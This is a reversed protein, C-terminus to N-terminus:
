LQNKKLNLKQQLVGAFILETSYPSYKLNKFSKINKDDDEDLIILTDSKYTTPKTKVVTGSASEVIMKVEELSPKINNGLYVRYGTLFGDSNEKTKELTKALKFSYRKEVDKDAFIYNNPPMVKGKSISDQVWKFSVIDIGKSLALLFKITRKFNNGMVLVNFNKDKEEVAKVGLNALSKKSEEFENDNKDFGSFMVQYANRKSTETEMEDEKAGRRNRKSVQPDTDPSNEAERLKKKTTAENEHKELSAQEANKRPRGRTRPASKEEEEEEEEEEVPNNVKEKTKRKNEQKSELKSMDENNKSAAARTVRRRPNEEAEAEPNSDAQQSKNEAEVEMRDTGETKKSANKRTGQVKKKEVKSEEAEAAKNKKQNMLDRLQKATKPEDSSLTSPLTSPLSSSLSAEPGALDQSASGQSNSITAQQSRRNNGINAFTSPAPAEPKKNPSPASAKTEETETKNVVGKLKQFGSTSSTSNENSLVKRMSFTEESEFLDTLDDGQTNSFVNPVTLTSSKKEGSGSLIKIRNQAPVAVKRTQNDSPAALYHDDTNDGLVQTQLNDLNAAAPRKVNPRDEVEETDVLQTPLNALDAASLQPKKKSPPNKNEEEEEENDVFQTPANEIDFKPPAARNVPRAEEEDNEVFQTPANELDFKPPAAKNAPREEEEEDNEVFQTPANELDFQPPAAKKGSAPEQEENECVLTPAFELDARSMRPSRPNAPKKFGGEDEHSTLIQTAANEINMKPKSVVIKPKPPALTNASHVEDEDHSGLIQTPANEFNGKPPLLRNRNAPAQFATSNNDPLVMTAQIEEEMQDDTLLQTTANDINAVFRSNKPPPANFHNDNGEPLVLTPQFLDDDDEGTLIQTVANAINNNNNIRLRNNSNNNVGLNHDDNEPLVLTSGIEDEEATLIQTVANDMNTTIGGFTVKKKPALFQAQNEQHEPLVMTAQIEEEETLIQTTASDINSVRFRSTHSNVTLHQPQHDENEPLVLTPQFLDDNDDNNNNGLNQTPANDQINKNGGGVSLFPSKKPPAKFSTENEEPLVLTPQFLDDEEGTLIQTAANDIHGAKFKNTHSNGTLHQPQHDENEPLVLTPQFLDDDDNNNGLIQTPANDQLNKNGGGVSLFPSKKPPAKFSTETEEPLVLTPQFLDDEEGTLIQTAANDINQQRVRNKPQLSVPQRFNEEPLVLTAGIDEDQDNLLQTKENEINANNVRLRNNSAAGRTNLNSNYEQNEPLILTAQM